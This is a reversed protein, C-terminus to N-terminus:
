TTIRRKIKIILFLALFILIMGLCVWSSWFMASYIGHAIGLIVSYYVLTGIGDTMVTGSLIKYLMVSSLVCSLLILVISVISHFPPIYRDFQFPLMACFFSVGLVACLIKKTTKKMPM